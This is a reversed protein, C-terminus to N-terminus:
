SMRQDFQAALTSPHSQGIDTLDELVAIFDESDDALAPERAHKSSTVLLHPAIHGELDGVGGLGILCTCTSKRRVHATSM